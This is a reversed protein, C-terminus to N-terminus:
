CAQLLCDFTALRVIRNAVIIVICGVISSKKKYIRLM